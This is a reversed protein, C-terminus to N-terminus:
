KIEEGDEVRGLYKLLTPEKYGLSRAKGATKKFAEADKLGFHAWGLTAWIVAQDPALTTAKELVPVAEKYRKLNVYAQGLSLFGEASAYDPLETAKTLVGVADDFRQANVLATGLTTLYITNDPKLEVAKELPPVAAAADAKMRLQVRGLEYQADVNDPELEVVKQLEVIAADADRRELQARALGFHVEPSDPAEEALQTLDQEALATNGARLDQLARAVKVELVLAQADPDNEAMAAAIAADGLAEQARDLAIKVRALEKYAEVAGPSTEIVQTLLPEAETARGSARLVSALGIVPGLLTDDAAMAARYADEAGTADGQAQLANGLAAQADAGGGATVAQRALTVGEDVQGEDVDRYSMAITPWIGEPDAAEAAEASTSAETMGRTYQVVAARGLAEGKAKGELKQAAAKYADLANDLEGRSERLTGLLLAAEGGATGPVDMAKQLITIAGDTDGAALEARAAEVTYAAPGEQEAAEQDEEVGAGAAMVPLAAALVWAWRKMSGEKVM